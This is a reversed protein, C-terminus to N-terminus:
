RQNATTQKISQPQFYRLEDTTLSRYKQNSFIITTVDPTQKEQSLNTQQVPSILQLQEIVYTSENSQGNIIIKTFAKSIVGQKPIMGLQWKKEDNSPVYFLQFEQQLQSLNGSFIAQMMKPMLESLGGNTQMPMITTQGQSDIQTLGHSQLILTNSFPKMQQWVVGQEPSFIVKGRSILPRKLIALQRQQIFTAILPQSQNFSQSLSYLASESIPQSFLLNNEATAPNCFFSLIGSLLFVRIFTLKKKM